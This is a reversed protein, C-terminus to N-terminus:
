DNKQKRPHTETVTKAVQAFQVMWTNNRILSSCIIAFCIVPFLFEVFTLFRKRYKMLFNLWILIVLKRRWMKLSPKQTGEHPAAEDQSGRPKSKRVLKQRMGGIQMPSNSDELNDYENRPTISTQSASPPPEQDPLVEENVAIVPIASLSPTAPMKWSSSRFKDDDDDKSKDRGKSDM